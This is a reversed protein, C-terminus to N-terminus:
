EPVAEHAARNTLLSEVLAVLEDRHRRASTRRDRRSRALVHESVCVHRRQHAM